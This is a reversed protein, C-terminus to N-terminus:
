VIRKYSYVSVNFAHDTLEGLTAHEKTHPFDLRQKESDWGRVVLLEEIEDDEKEIRWGWRFPTETATNLEGMAVKLRSEFGERESTRVRYHYVSLVPSELASTVGDGPPPFLVSDVHYLVLKKEGETVILPMLKGMAQKNEETGIWEWHAAPSYWRTTILIASPDENQQLM